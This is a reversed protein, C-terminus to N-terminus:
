WVFDGESGLFKGLCRVCFYCSVLCCFYCINQYIVSVICSHTYNLTILKIFFYCIRDVSYCLDVLSLQLFMHLGLLKRPWILTSVDEFV